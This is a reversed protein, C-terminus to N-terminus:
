RYASPAIGCYRKFARSFSYISGFGCRSAIEGISCISGSLLRKAEEMRMDTLYEMPTKGIVEVFLRHLHVDSIGCLQALEGVTPPVALDKGLRVLAPRIQNYKYYAGTRRSSETFLRHLITYLLSM